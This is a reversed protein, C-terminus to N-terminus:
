RFLACILRSFSIIRCISESIFYSLGSIAKIRAIKYASKYTLGHGVHVDLGLRKAYHASEKLKLFSSKINRKKNFLRSFKGAHLEVCNAGLQKSLKINSIVPEIFM